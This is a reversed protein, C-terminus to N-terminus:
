GFGIRDKMTQNLVTEELFGEELEGAGASGAWLLSWLWHSHLCCVHVCGLSEWLDQWSSMPLKVLDLCAMRTGLLKQKM